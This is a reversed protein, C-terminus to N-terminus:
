KRPSPSASPSPASPLPGLGTSRARATLAATVRPKTTTNPIMPIRHDETDLQSPVRSGHNVMATPTTSTPSPMAMSRPKSGM